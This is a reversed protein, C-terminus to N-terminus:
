LDSMECFGWALLLALLVASTIVERAALMPAAKAACWAECAAMRCARKTECMMELVVVAGVELLRLAEVLELARSVRSVMAVAEEVLAGVEEGVVVEVVAGVVVGVVDASLLHKATGALSRVASRRM